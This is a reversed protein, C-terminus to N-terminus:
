LPPQPLTSLRCDKPSVWFTELSSVRFRQIYGRYIEVLAMEDQFGNPSEFENLPLVPEKRNLIVKGLSTRLAITTQPFVLPYVYTIVSKLQTPFGEETKGM